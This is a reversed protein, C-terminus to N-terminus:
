RSRPQRSSARSPYNVFPYASQQSLDSLIQSAPYLIAGKEYLMELELLVMASVLLDTNEIQETTKHTLRTTNGSHLYIVINTDLYSVLGVQSGM